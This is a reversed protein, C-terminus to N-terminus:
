ATCLTGLGYSGGHSAWSVTSVMDLPRFNPPCPGAAPGSERGKLTEAVQDRVWARMKQTAAARLVNWGTVKHLIVRFVSGRGRVRLRGLRNGTTRAGCCTARKRSVTGSGM